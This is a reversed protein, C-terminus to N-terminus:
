KKVSKKRVPKKKGNVATFMEKLSPQKAESQHLYQVKGTFIETFKELTTEKIFKENFGTKVGEFYVFGKIVEKKMQNQNLIFLPSVIM